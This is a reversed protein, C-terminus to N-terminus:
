FSEGCRLTQDAKPPCSSPYHYSWHRTDWRVVDGEECGLHALDEARWAIAWMRFLGIDGMLSRGDERRVAGSEDVSHPVGLTLTGNPALRRSVSPNLRLDLHSTGNVYVRLKQSRASWTLCVSHWHHSSLMVDLPWKYGFLLATIHGSDGELGLEVFSIGPAKYAFATWKTRLTLCLRVCVSLEELAPVEVEPALQWMCKKAQFVAKMGWLSPNEHCDTDNRKIQYFRRLGVSLQGRSPWWRREGLLEMWESHMTIGTDTDAVSWERELLVKGRM